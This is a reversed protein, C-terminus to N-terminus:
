VAGRMVLSFAEGPGPPEWSGGLLCATGAQVLVARVFSDRSNSSQAGARHSGLCLHPCWVYRGHPFREVHESALQRLESSRTSVRTDQDNPFCSAPTIM